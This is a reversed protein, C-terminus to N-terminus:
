RAAARRTRACPAAIHPRKACARAARRIARRAASARGGPHTTGCSLGRAPAGGKGVRWSSSARASASTGTSRSRERCQSASRRQGSSVTASKLRGPKACRGARASHRSRARSPRATRPSGLAPARSRSAPRPRCCRYRGCAAGRCTRRQAGLVIHPAVVGVRPEGGRDLRHALRAADRAAHCIGAAVAIRAADVVHLPHQAAAMGDGLPLAGRRQKKRTGFLSQLTISSQFTM